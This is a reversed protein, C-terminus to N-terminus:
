KIKELGHIPFTYQPVFRRPTLRMSIATAPMSEEDHLGGVLVWVYYDKEWWKLIYLFRNTESFM